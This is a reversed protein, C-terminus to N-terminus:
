DLNLEGKFKIPFEDSSLQLEYGKKITENPIKWEKQLLKLVLKKSYRINILAIYYASAKIDDKLINHYLLGINKLASLSEREIAKKYWSEAIKYDNLNIEYLLGLGDAAKKDGHLYAETYFKISNEYDEIDKYSSAMNVLNQNNRKISNSYLYWEIAKKNDNLDQRYINAINYAAIEDDDAQQYWVGTNKYNTLRDEWEPKPLKVKKESSIKSIDDKKDDCASFSLVLLSTLVIKLIKSKIKM